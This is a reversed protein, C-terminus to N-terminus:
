FNCISGGSPETFSLTFKLKGLFEEPFACVDQNAEQGGPNYKKTAVNGFTVCMVPSVFSPLSDSFEQEPRLESKKKKKKVGHRHVRHKERGREKNQDFLYSCFLKVKRTSNKLSSSM